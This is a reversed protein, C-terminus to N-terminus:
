YVDKKDIVYGDRRDGLYNFIVRDVSYSISHVSGDGFVAHIGQTHASGFSINEKWMYGVNYFNARFPKDPIPPLGTSRVTDFDFGDSWGRDDGEFLKESPGSGEYNGTPLFKEGILMTQSLGDTVDKMRSTFPPTKTRVIMGCYPRSPNSPINFDSGNWYDAMAQQNPDTFEKGTAPTASAYDMLGNKYGADSAKNNQTPGRRSPCFFMGIKLDKVVEWDPESLITGEEIFRLIQFPWGVPLEPPGVPKGPSYWGDNVNGSWSHWGGTPLRRYADHHNQVALGIQKLHNRCQTRRAAERASQVAPLLLAILIGIIAIVVLLEVLSFGCPSAKCPPNHLKRQTALRHM